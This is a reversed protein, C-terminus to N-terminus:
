KKINIKCSAHLKGVKVDVIYIGKPVDRFNILEDFRDSKPYTFKRVVAGDMSYIHVIAESPHVLEAQFSYGDTHLKSGAYVDTIGASGDRTDDGGTYTSGDFNMDTTGDLFRKGSTVVSGDRYNWQTYVWFKNSSNNYVDKTFQQYRMQTPGMNHDIGSSDTYGFVFYYGQQILQENTLSSMAIMTCSTGDGKRTLSTPIVPASYVTVVPSTYSNNYWVSNQPGKNTLDLGFTIHYTGMGTTIAEPVVTLSTGSGAYNGDQTWSYVWDISGNPTYGGSASSPYPSVTLEDGNRVYISSVEIGEPAKIEPWVNFSWNITTTSGVVGNLTNRAVLQYNYTEVNRTNNQVSVENNQAGSVASGNLSWEYTWGGLDGTYGGTQNTMMRVIASYDYDTVDLPQAEIAGRSWAHITVPITEKFWINDGYSNTVTVTYTVTYDDDNSYAMIVPNVANTSANPTDWIYTWGVPNGGVTTVAMEASEGYYVNFLDTSVSAAAMPYVMVEFQYNEQYVVEGDMVNTLSLTYQDQRPGESNNEVSTQLTAANAGSINVGNLQWQYRWGQTYGGQVDAGITIVSGSMVVLEEEGFRASSPVPWVTFTHNITNTYPTEIGDMTNITQVRVTQTEERNTNNVATFNYIPEAGVNVNDLTWNFTWNQPDGGSYNVTMEVDNGSIVNTPYQGAFSSVPIDWVQIEFAYNENFVVDENCTNKVNCTLGYLGQEAANFTYTSNTGVVAGNYLWEYTWNNTVGGQVTVTMPVQSGTYVTTRDAPKNYLAPMPWVNFSHSLNNIYASPIGEPTNSVTVTVTNLISGNAGDNLAEYNYTSSATGATTGNLNWNFSWNEPDGGSYNVEMGIQTGSIVDRPYTQEFSSTPQEYVTVTFNYTENFKISSFSTGKNFTNTVHVTVNYTGPTTETFSFVSGGSAPQNDIEWEFEWNDSVGGLMNVNIQRTSGSFVSLNEDSKSALSPVPWVNYTQRMVPSTYPTLINEPSNTATATVSVVISGNANDNSYSFNYSQETGANVGNVQWQYTWKDPDGQSTAISMPQTEGSMMDTPYSDSFNASPVPLVTVTFTYPTQTNFVDKGNCMNKPTVTITHVQSGNAGSVGGTMAGTYTYSSSNNQVSVGDVSWEYSWANDVGGQMEISLPINEGNFISKLENTQSVFKPTPWVTFTQRLTTSYGNDINFPENTVMVSIPVEISGNANTNVANYTLTQNDESQLQNNVTWSYNWSSADGGEKDVMLNVEDGNIFNTYGSGDYESSTWNISKALPTPYVTVTYAYSASTYVSEGGYDNTATVNITYIKAETGLNTPTFTYSPQSPAGTVETGSWSYTWGDSKGGRIQLNLTVETGSFVVKKYTDVPFVEPTPWVTIARQLPIEVPADIGAPRNTATVKVVKIIEPGTINTENFTYTSSNDGVSSNDISWSYSWNSSDGRQTTVTLVVDVNSLVNTNSPTSSLNAEPKPWVTVSFNYTQGDNNWVSEVGYKNTVTLKIDYNISSTGENTPTFTYSSETNSGTVGTGEWLYTWGNPNGGEVEVSLTVPTGSFVVNNYEQPTVQPTPWVTFQYESFATAPNVINGPTNTVTVKATQKKGQPENTNTVGFQYNATENTSTGDLEWQYKWTSQNTQDGGTTNATLSIQSGNLFNPDSPGQISVIINQYVDINFTINQTFPTADGIQNTVKCVVQQNLQNGTPANGSLTISSENASGSNTLGAPVTWEYKWGGTYGGSPVVSLNIEEGNFIAFQTKNEQAQVSAAPWVTYQYSATVTGPTLINTPDNTVTLEVTKGVQTQGANQTTFTYDKGTSNAETETSADWQYKWDAGSGGSPNATLTISENPLFDTRTQNSTITATVEPYVNVTFTKYGSWVQTGQIYSKVNCTVTQNLNGSTTATGKATLSAQNVPSTATLVGQPLTWEYSWTSTYGASPTVSMTLEQGNYIGQPTAPDSTLTPVPWVTIQQSLSITKTLGDTATNTAEVSITHSAQGNSTNECNYTFQADNSTQRNNGDVSWVYSWGSDLGGSPTVTFTVEEGSVYETRTFSNLHATPETYVNVTFVVPITKSEGDEGVTNTAYCTVTQNLKNAGQANGTLTIQNSNVANGTLADSNWEWKYSWGAPNGESQNVQLTVQDGNFISQIGKQAVATPSSYVVVNTSLTQNYWNESPM